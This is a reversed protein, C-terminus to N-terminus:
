RTAPGGADLVERLKRELERATFPKQIHSYNAPVRGERWDTSYGSMLVIKLDPRAARVAKILDAGGMNPMVMDTVLLHIETRHKEFLAMAEVGDAALLVNYGSQKLVRQLLTRIIADDDVLLITESSRAAAAAPQAAGAGAAEPTQVAHPLYVTIATGAGPRSRIDIYGGSQKVIGFVTSLGLGTGFGAPKTTFFPELCQSRTEPTMGQGTDAVTISVYDGPEMTGGDLTRSRTLAERSTRIILEGGDPMADRSNVCLNILVQELQGPDVAVHGADPGLVTTLKVDAGILRRLLKEVNVIAENIDLVRVEFAQQRSFALLQRTLASARQGSNRIEEIDPRIKDDPGIEQLVFESYGLIATLLNNFDHAIGAALRGIAEMKQMQRLQLETQRLAEEAKARQRRADADSLERRVASPLRGIQGKVFYDSAGARMAAVASDEGMSGSVVIFPLEPAATQIVRLAEPGSFDPMAHDSIVIDWADSTLAQELAALTDVRRSVVKFGGRELEMLTLAADDESDEVLLARLTDRTGVTM